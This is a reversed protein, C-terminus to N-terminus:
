MNTKKTREKIHNQVVLFLSEGNYYSFQFFILLKLPKIRIYYM